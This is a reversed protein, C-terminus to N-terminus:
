KVYKRFSDYMNNWLPSLDIHGHKDRYGTSLMLMTFLLYCYVCVFILVSVLECTSISKNSTKSIHMTLLREFMKNKFHM